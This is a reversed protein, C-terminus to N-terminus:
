PLVVVKGRAQGEDVYRLAEVIEALPFTRDIRPKVAGAAILEKLAAVDPKYFPKWWLMLGMKKGSALSAVPGVVLAQILRTDSGGLTDYVGGPKLARRLDLLSHHADM